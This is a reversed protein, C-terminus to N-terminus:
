PASPATKVNYEARQRRVDALKEGKPFLTIYQDCAFVADGYRETKAFLEISQLVSAEVLPILERQRMYGGGFLAIRQLSALAEGYRKQALATQGEAELKEAENRQIRALELGAPVTLLPDQTFKFIESLAETAQDFKKLALFTKSQLLKVEYFLGTKEYRRMLEDLAKASEDYKEMEYYARGLGYLSRELLARKETGSQSVQEFADAADEPLGGDLMGQAIRVFQDLGYKSKDQKMTEYTKHALDFKKLELAAKILQYLASKGDESQPYRRSLDEFTAMAKDIANADLHITGIANLAKPAFESTANEKVFQELTQIAAARLQVTAEPTEGRM